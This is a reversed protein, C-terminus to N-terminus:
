VGAILNGGGLVFAGFFGVETGGGVDDAVVAGLDVGVLEVDGVVADASGGLAGAAIVLALGEGALGGVVFEGFLDFDRDGGAAYAGGADDGFVLEGFDINVDLVAGDGEASGDCALLFFLGDLFLDGAHFADLGDVVLEGDM